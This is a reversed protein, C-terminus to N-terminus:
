YIYICVIIVDERRVNNITMDRSAVATDWGLVGERQAFIDRQVSSRVSPATETMGSSTHVEEPYLYSDTNSIVIM